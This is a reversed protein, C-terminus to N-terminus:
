PLHKQVDKGEYLIDWKSYLMHMREIARKELKLPCILVELGKVVQNLPKQLTIRVFNDLLNYTLSLCALVDEPKLLQYIDRRVNGKENTINTAVQSGCQIIQKPLKPEELDRRKIIHDIKGYKISFRFPVVSGWVRDARPLDTTDLTDLVAQGVSLPCHYLSQLRILCPITRQGNKSVKISGIFMTTDLDNSNHGIDSFNTDCNVLGFGREIERQGNLHCKLLYGPNRYFVACYDPYREITESMISRTHVQLRIDIESKGKLTAPSCISLKNFGGNLRHNRFDIM